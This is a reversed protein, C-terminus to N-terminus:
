NKETPAEPPSPKGRTPTTLRGLPGGTRMEPPLWTNTYQKLLLALEKNQEQTLKSKLVFLTKIKARFLETEAKMAKDVASELAAATVDAKALALAFDTATKRQTDVKAATDKQAKTLLNTVETKQEDTLKLRAVFMPVIHPQLLRMTSSVCAYPSPPRAVPAPKATKEADPTAAEEAIAVAACAVPLVCLLVVLIVRRLM